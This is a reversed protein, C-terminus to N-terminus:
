YQSGIVFSKSEFNNLPSSSKMSLQESSNTLVNTVLDTSDQKIIRIVSLMLHGVGISLTRVRDVIHTEKIRNNRPDVQKSSESMLDVHEDSENYVSDNIKSADKKKM